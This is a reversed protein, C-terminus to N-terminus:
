SQKSTGCGSGMVGCCGKRTVAKQGITRGTIQKFQEPTVVQAISSGFGAAKVQEALLEPTVLRHDYGVMVWGGEVDVESVAVGKLTELATTINRSCSGCSMGSTKLLVVSDVTAAVKIRFAFMVLLSVVAMVLLMTTIRKANM